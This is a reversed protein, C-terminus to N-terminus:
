KSWEAISAENLTIYDTNGAKTALENALLDQSSVQYSSSQPTVVLLESIQKKLNEAKKSNQPSVAVSIITRSM